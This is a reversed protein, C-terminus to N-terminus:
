DQLHLHTCQTWIHEIKSRGLLTLSSVVQHSKVAPPSQVTDAPGKATLMSFLILVLLPGCICSAGLVWWWPLPTLVPHPSRSHGFKGLCIECLWAQQPRSESSTDWNQPAFPRLDRLLRSSGVRSHPQSPLPPNRCSLRDPSWAQDLCGQGGSEPRGTQAFM